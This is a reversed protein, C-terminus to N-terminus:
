AMAAFEKEFIKTANLINYYKDDQKFIGYMTQTDFGMSELAPPMLKSEEVTIVDLVDDILVGALLTTDEHFIELVIVKTEKTIETFGLEIKKALDVVPIVNGELSIAGVIYEPAKPVKMMKELNIVRLVNEVDMGFLEKCLSFLVCPKQNKM